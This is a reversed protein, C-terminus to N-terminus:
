FDFTARARIGWQSVNPHDLYNLRKVLDIRFFKLVNAVGASAEIYPTKTLTYTYPTGLADLPFQYLSPNQQPDNQSRM